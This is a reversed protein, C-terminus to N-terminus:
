ESNKNCNKKSNLHIYRKTLLYISILIILVLFDDKLSLTNGVPEEPDPDINDNSAFMRNGLIPADSFPQSIELTKKRYGNTRKSLQSSFLGGVSHEVKQESLDRNKRKYTMLSQSEDTIFLSSKNGFSEGSIPSFSGTRNHNLLISHKREKYMSYSSNNTSLYGSSLNNPILRVGNYVEPESMGFLVEKIEVIKHEIKYLELKDYMVYTTLLAFLLSVGIFIYKNQKVKVVHIM